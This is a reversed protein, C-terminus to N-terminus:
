GPKKADKSTRYISAKYQRGRTTAFYQGGSDKEEDTPTTATM